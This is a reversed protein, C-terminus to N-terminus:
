KDEPYEVRGDEYQAFRGKERPAVPGGQAWPWGGFQTKQYDNFAQMIEERTNMVFPGHAVVPEDIPEGELLLLRSEKSGNKLVIGEGGDLEAFSGSSFAVSEIEMTEGSYYYLMRSLTSSGRPIIFQAEPEMTLLWIGVHNAPDAAWSDPNPSPSTIRGYRGAILRIHTSHGNEDMHPIVPIEEDWLMKYHPPVFKSKAPLNLWVQFLEMPNPQTESLLPFMEAHQLGAGATMWQVDGNGYRGMAGLGDAHDVFGELVVTVTEFGRHPHVPFGPVTDGYYMRWPASHDFEQQTPKESSPVAPGMQANGQPFEDRHHMCAIFPNKVQMGFELTGTSLIKSKM